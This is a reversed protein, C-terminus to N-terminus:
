SDLRPHRQPRVFEVAEQWAAHAAGAVRALRAAADSQQKPSRRPHDHARVQHGEYLGSKVFGEGGPQHCSVCRGVFIPMVDERFSKKSQSTQPLVRKPPSEKPACYAPTSTTIQLGAVAAIALGAAAAAFILRQRKM